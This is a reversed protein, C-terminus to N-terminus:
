GGREKLYYRENHESIFREIASTYRLFAGVYGNEYAFKYVDSYKIVGYHKQIFLVFENFQLTVPISLIRNKCEGALNGVLDNVDYQFKGSEKWHLIYEVYSDRSRDCFQILNEEIGLETAVGSIYRPNRFTILYHYHEKKLDGKAHLLEGTEEDIVDDIYRDRDHLIGVANYHCLQIQMNALAHEKNEPYLLIRFDRSKDTERSKNRKIKAPM